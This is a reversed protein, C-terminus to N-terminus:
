SKGLKHIKSIHLDLFMMGVAALKYWIAHGHMFVNETECWIRKLDLQSVTQARLVFLGALGFFGYEKLIEGRINTYHDLILIPILNLMVIKQVPIDAIDFYTFLTVNLMVTFWFTAYQDRTDKKRVRQINFAILFSTMIDM